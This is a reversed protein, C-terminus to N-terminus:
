CVARLMGPPLALVGPRYDTKSYLGRGTEKTTRIELTPPLTRYLGDSVSTSPSFGGQVESILSTATNSVQEDRDIKMEEESGGTNKSEQVPLTGLNGPAKSTATHSM